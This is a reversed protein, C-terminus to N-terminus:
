CCHTNKNAWFPRMFSRMEQMEKNSNQHEDNIMQHITAMCREVYANYTMDTQTTQFM